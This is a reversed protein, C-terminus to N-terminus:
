RSPLGHSSAEIGMSGAKTPSKRPALERWSTGNAEPVFYRIGLGEAAALPMPEPAQESVVWVEAGRAQECLAQLSAVSAAGAAAPRLEVLVRERRLRSIVLAVLELAAGVLLGAWGIQQLFHRTELSLAPTGTMAFVLGIAVVWLGIFALQRPLLSGGLFGPVPMPARPDPIPTTPVIETRLGARERLWLISSWHFASTKM